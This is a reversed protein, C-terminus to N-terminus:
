NQDSGRVQRAEGPIKQPAPTPSPLEAASGGPVRYVTRGSEERYEEAPRFLTCAAFLTVATIAVYISIRKV